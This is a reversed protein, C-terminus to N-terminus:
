TCFSDDDAEGRTKDESGGTGEPGDPARRAAGGTRPECGGGDVSGDSDSFCLSCGFPPCRWKQALARAGRVIRQEGERPAVRFQIERSRKAGGASTDKELLDVACEGFLCVYSTCHAGVLRLRRRGPQAAASAPLPLPEVHALGPWFDLLSPYDTLVQASM